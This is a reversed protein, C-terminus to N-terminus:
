LFSNTLIKGSDGDVPSNIEVGPQKVLMEVIGIHGKMFSIALPTLQWDNGKVVDCGAEILLKLCFYWGYAAAYHALGNGSSDKVEPNIGLRLLYSLVHAHGNIVAHFIATRNQFHAFIPM